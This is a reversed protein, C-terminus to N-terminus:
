KFLAGSFFLGFLSSITRVENSRLIGFCEIVIMMLSNLRWLVSLIIVEREYLANKSFTPM